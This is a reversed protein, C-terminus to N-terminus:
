HNLVSTAGQPPSPNPEWHVCPMCSNTDGMEQLDSTSKQGPLCIPCRCIYMCVFCGTCM